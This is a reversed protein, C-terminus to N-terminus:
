EEVEDLVTKIRGALGPIQRLPIACVAVRIGAALPVIYIHQAHLKECVADPQKSPISIFFGAVYPIYPLGCASAEQMFLDARAKIMRYYTDREGEIAALLDPNSYVKALTMMCPRNINSWTARSTYQNIYFFERIIEENDSIGIMAGVRQGYMTFGKSMSYQVIALVGEPLHSLAKFVDRVEDKDGAYDLYAVDLFLIVKVGTEESVHGAMRVVDQMEKKSLSYGTPNHAPTNIIVMVSDQTAACERIKAELAATNYHGDPTLMRYTDLRRNMDACLLKYASWYWEATLVADGASTYNWVAHHIGGTGGATAVASIHGQPRTKGFAADIVKDLYEPVGAIPAYAILERTSLSRYVKEVTPLCVLRGDEDLIAGQTGNIVKDAGICAIDRAAAGAAGFIKDKAIKGKAHPAAFSKFM